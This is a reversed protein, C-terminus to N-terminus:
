HRAPKPFLPEPDTQAYTEFSDDGVHDLHAPSWRPDRDKDIVAARIGEYFDHGALVHRTAAFERELCERLDRSGRAFRLLRLTLKISTPSKALLIAHAKRAFKTDINALSALTIDMDSFAFARDIDVRNEQIPTSLPSTAFSDLLRRVEAGDTARSLEGLRCTIEPLTASPAMVDALGAYVADSGGIQEGTLGLYTGVEGPAHALLWTGGVDPFFGIGTEPMALRTRETVIRHGGHASLGVGGGIVIGDMMAVYPKPYSAILANLLYEERWFTRALSSGVKGSDYLARIDGGACFGREGEGTILVTAIEPDTAFLDLACAITRVMELTLSNLAKPRNLSIRGLSGARFVLVPSDTAAAPLASV